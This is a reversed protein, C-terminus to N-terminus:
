PYIPHVTRGAQAQNSESGAPCQYVQLYQQRLDLTGVGFTNRLRCHDYMWQKLSATGPTARLAHSPAPVVIWVTESHGLGELGRDAQILAVTDARLRHVRTGSLYHDLVMSQDSFVIDGPQVRADLWHAVARFDYRRGSLYQSILTPIGAGIIISALAASLLWRPRVGWDFRLLRELLVGAGIYFVPATPLLYYTSVATRFSLLTLVVMPFLCVATLLLALSRDRQQWLLLVGLVASIVLPLTLSDVYALVYFIQKFGASNPTVTIFQGSGPAKDHDAIWHYLMPVFRLAIGIGVVLVIFATWRVSKQRWIQTRKAGRLQTLAFWVAVGGLLLISVPHALAALVGTVLGLAAARPNRDRVGIYLAFPYIASLLFVLSWYRAFQAYFVQLPSLVLILAAFLAAQVGILRRTVLYLAPVALVGFLAPLLRLGLEDLPLLPGVVYYNLLYQLPRWNSFQPNLSDRLTFMETAEFSYYGVRWFRLVSALVILGALLIAATKDRKQGEVHM